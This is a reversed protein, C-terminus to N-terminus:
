KRWTVKYSDRYAWNAAGIPSFTSLEDHIGQLLNAVFALVPSTEDDDDGDLSHAIIGMTTILAQQVALMAVLNVAATKMRSKQQDTTTENAMSTGGMVLLKTYGLIERNFGKEINGTNLQIRRSGYKNNFTTAVWRKM